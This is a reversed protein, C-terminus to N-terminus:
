TSERKLWSELKGTIKRAAGPQRESWLWSGPAKGTRLPNATSVKPLHSLLPSVVRRLTRENLSAIVRVSRSDLDINIATTDPKYVDRILTPNELIFRLFPVCCAGMSELVLEALDSAEQMAEKPMPGGAPLADVEYRRKKWCAPPQKGYHLLLVPADATRRIERARGLAQELEAQALATAHAQPDVGLARADEEVAGRNAWPTGLLALAHLNRFENAGRIAGFHGFTVEGVLRKERWTQLEALVSAGGASIIREGTKTDGNLADWCDRLLASVPKHSILGLSLNQGSQRLSRGLHHLIRALAKFGRDSMAGDPALLNRRVLAGTRIFMRSVAEPEETVPPLTFYRVERGRLAGKMEAETRAGTADLLVFSALKGNENRWADLPSTRVELRVSKRHAALCAKAGQRHPSRTLLDPRATTVEEAFALMMSDLDGRPAATWTSADLRKGRPPPPGEQRPKKPLACLANKLEETGPDRLLEALERGSLRDGYRPSLRPRESLFRMARVLPRVLPALKESWEALRRDPHEMTVAALEELSITRTLLLAPLEDVIIPQRLSSGMFPALAQVTLLTQLNLPKEPNYAPCAKGAGDYNKRHPCANCVLKRPSYGRQGAAKIAELYRCAPKGDPGPASALGWCRRPQKLGLEDAEKLRSDLDSHSAALFTGKSQHLALHRLAERTKGLGPPSVLVACRGWEANAWDLASDFLEPLRAEAEALSISPETALKSLDFPKANKQASLLTPRIGARDQGTIRALAAETLRAHVEAADLLGAHALGFCLKGERYLTMNSQKTKAERVKACALVLTAEGYAQADGKHMPCLEGAEISRVREQAVRSREEEAAAEATEWTALEVVEPPPEVAPRGLLLGHRQGLLPDIAGGIFRPAAV